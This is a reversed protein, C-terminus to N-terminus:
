NTFAFRCKLVVISEITKIQLGDCHIIRYSFYPQWLIMMVSVSCGFLYDSWLRTRAYVYRMWHMRKKHIFINDTHASIKTRNTCIFARWTINSDSKTIFIFSVLIKRDVYITYIYNLFIRIDLSYRYTYLM